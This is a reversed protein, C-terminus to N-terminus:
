PCGLLLEDDVGRRICDVVTPAGLVVHGAETLQDGGLQFSQGVEWDEAVVCTMQSRLGDGVLALRVEEAAVWEGSVSYGCDFRHMRPLTM